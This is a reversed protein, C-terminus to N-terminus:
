ITRPISFLYINSDSYETFYYEFSIKTQSTRDIFDSFKTIKFIIKHSRSFFEMQIYNLYIPAISIENTSKYYDVYGIM